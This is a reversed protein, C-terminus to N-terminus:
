LTVVSQCRGANLEVTRSEDNVLRFASSERAVARDRDDFWEHVALIERALGAVRIDDVGVAQIHIRQSFPIRIDVLM